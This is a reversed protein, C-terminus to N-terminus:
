APVFEQATGDEKHYHVLTITTNAGMNRILTILGDKCDELFAHWRTKADAASGQDLDITFGCAPYIVYDNTAGIRTVRSDTFHTSRTAYTSFNNNFRTVIGPLLTNTCYNRVTNLNTSPRTINFVIKVKRTVLNVLVAAVSIIILLRHYIM